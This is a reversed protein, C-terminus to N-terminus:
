HKQKVLLLYSLCYTIAIFLETYDTIDAFPLEKYDAVDENM